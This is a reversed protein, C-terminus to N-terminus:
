EGEPGRRVVAFGHAPLAVQVRPGHVARRRRLPRARVDFVEVTVPGSGPVTVEAPRPAGDGNHLLGLSGYRGSLLLRAVVPRVLVADVRLPREGVDEADARLVGGPRFTGPLAVPLLAGPVASVGQEGGTGHDVPSSGSRAASRPSNFPGNWVTRGADRDDVLNVVPSALLPGDGEPLTWALSGGERLAVYAGGSYESEGTAPSSPRVVRAAGAPEAKEAELV